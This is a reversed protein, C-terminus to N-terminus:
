NYDEARQALIVRDNGGYDKRCEVRHAWACDALIKRLLAQQECGIEFVMWGGPKLKDGYAQAIHRYFDGGDEGGDLAMAPEKAVEPQLHRMEERTLYPPNSVILDLSGPLLENQYTFINGEVVLVGPAAIGKPGLAKQANQGLYGLAEPSKEVATVTAAPCFRRIGLGLCGSGACLDLVMPAAKGRLTEAAAECVIETDSRPCLVGEGVSLMFDLFPWQGEIYQLPTRQARRCTVEKLKEAQPETLVAESLLPDRGSSLRVLERADVDPEPCGAVLLQAEVAKMASRLPLGAKIASTVM